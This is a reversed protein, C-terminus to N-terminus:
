FVCKIYKDNNPFYFSLLKDHIDTGYSHSCENKDDKLILSFTMVKVQGQQLFLFTLNSYGLAIVQYYQINSQTLSDHM